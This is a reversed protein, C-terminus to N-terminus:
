VSYNMLADIFTMIILISAIILPISISLIQLILITYFKRSFVDFVNPPMLYLTAWFIMGEICVIAITIWFYLIDVNNNKKYKRSFFIFIDHGFNIFILVNILQFFEPNFQLESLKQFNITIQLILSILSMGWLLPLAVIIYTSIEM